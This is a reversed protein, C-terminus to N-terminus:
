LEERRRRCMERPKWASARCADRSEKMVALSAAELSPARGRAPLNRQSGHLHRVSQIGAGSRSLFLSFSSSRPPLPAGPSSVAPHFCVSADRSGRGSRRPLSPPPPPARPTKVHRKREERGPFSPLMLTCVQRQPPRGPEEGGGRTAAGRRHSFLVGSPFIPATRLLRRAQLKQTSRLPPFFALPVAFNTPNSPSLHGQKTHIQPLPPLSPTFPFSSHPSAQEHPLLSFPAWSFPSHAGGPWM